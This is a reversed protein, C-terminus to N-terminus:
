IREFIAMYRTAGDGSWGYKILKFEPRLATAYGEITAMKKVETPWKDQKADFEVSPDGEFAGDIAIYKKSLTKAKGLFSLPDAGRRYADRFLYHSVQGFHVVDFQADVNFSEFRVCFFEIHGLGTATRIKQAIEVMKNIPDIGIIEKFYDRFSFSFLGRNSGVDLLSGLAGNHLEPVMKYITEMRNNCFPLEDVTEPDFLQNPPYENENMEKRIEDWNVTM